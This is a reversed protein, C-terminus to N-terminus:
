VYSTNSNSIGDTVWSFHISDAGLSQGAQAANYEINDTPAAGTSAVDFTMVGTTKDVIMRGAIKGGGFQFLVCPFGVDAEGEKAIPRMREPVAYGGNIEPATFVVHGGGAWVPASFGSVYLNVSRGNKIFVMKTSGGIIGNGTQEFKAEPVEIEEYFYPDGKGDVSLQNSEYAPKDDNRFSTKTAM